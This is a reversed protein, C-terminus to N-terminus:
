KRKRSQIFHQLADNIFKNQSKYDRHTSAMALKMAFFTDEPIQLTTKVLAVDEEWDPKRGMRKPTPEAAEQKTAKPTPRRKPKVPQPEPQPAPQVEKIEQIPAVMKAPPVETKGLKGLLDMTNKNKAM